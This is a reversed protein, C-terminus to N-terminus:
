SHNRLRYSAWFNVLHKPGASEPRRNLFDGQDSKTLKSDNYSYGAILNLGDIPSATLSAEFGRSYLEGDQVYLLSPRNEIVTNSVKIDYYSLTAALKNQVINLKTGVEFQRAHEPDFAVTRTPGAAPDGEQQPGLNSFGDM